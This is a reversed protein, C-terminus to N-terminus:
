LAMEGLTILCDINNKKLNKLAKAFGKDTKFEPSRFSKIYSGGLHSINDVDKQTLLILENDVVGQYGFKFAFVNDKKKTALKVFNSIFANMGPADGGSTLIAINM